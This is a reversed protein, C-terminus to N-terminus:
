WKRQCEAARWVPPLLLHCTKQPLITVIKFQPHSGSQSFKQSM